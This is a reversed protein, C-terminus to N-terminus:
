PRVLEGLAEYQFILENGKVLRRNVQIGSRNPTVRIAKLKRVSAEIVMGPYYANSDQGAIGFYGMGGISSKIPEQQAGLVGAHERLKDPDAAMNEIFKEENVQHGWLGMVQVTTAFNTADRASQLSIPFPIYSTSAAWTTGIFIHGTLM